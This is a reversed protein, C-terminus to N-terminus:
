RVCGPTVKCTLARSSSGLNCRKIPTARKRLGAPWGPEGLLMPHFGSAHRTFDQAFRLWDIFRFLHLSRFLYVTDLGPHTQITNAVSRAPGPL